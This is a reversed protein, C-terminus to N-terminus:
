NDPVIRVNDEGRIPAGYFTEAELVAVSEGEEIMFEATEIKCVLDWLGDENLDEEHCLLKNSKGVMKVRAGALSITDPDVMTADFTESSLIAVPIVGASSLNISNPESSPKIDITVQVTPSFVELTPLMGTWGAGGAVYFKSGIVGGPSNHRATPMPTETSWTNTAPDYVELTDFVEVDSLGGAVYLKGNIVGVTSGWRPTPMPALTNWSNTAPDYVDLKDWSGSPEHGGVVYFKGDLVVGGPGIHYNPAPPGDAIWSNTNADYIHLRKRYGSYGDCPSHVYLRRNIVGAVSCGSLRPMNPGFSWANTAPNYIQLTRQPISSIPWNWGGAVYLKGDIVGVAGGYVPGPMSAAATWSDTAPSYVELAGTVGLAGGLHGGAVYLLDGIVGEHSSNRATPMPTKTEWIGQALAQGAVLVCALVVLGTVIARPVSGRRKM